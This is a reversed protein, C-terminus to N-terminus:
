VKSNKSLPSQIPSRKTLLCAIIGTRSTVGLKRMLLKIYEKVTNLSLGLSHAIEKNSRDELLLRVVDQERNNLNWQRSILPLNVRDPRIRELIFMFFTERKQLSQQHGSLVLGRVSYLRRGSKLLEIFYVESDGGERYEVPDVVRKEILGKWKSCISCIEPISPSGKKPSVDSLSLIQWAEKNHFVTEKTVTSQPKYILFASSSSATVQTKDVVINDM